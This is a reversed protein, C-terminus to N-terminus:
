KLFHSAEVALLRSVSAAVQEFGFLWTRSSVMVVAKQIFCPVTPSPVCRRRFYVVRIGSTLMIGDQVAYRFSIFCSQESLCGLFAALGKSRRRRLTGGALRWEYIRRHEVDHVGGSAVTVELTFHSLAFFLHGRHSM